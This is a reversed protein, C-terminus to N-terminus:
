HKLGGLAALKSFELRIYLALSIKLNNERMCVYLGLFYLATSLNFFAGQFWFECYEFGKTATGLRKSFTCNKMM